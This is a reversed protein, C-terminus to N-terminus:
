KIVGIKYKNWQKKASKGHFYFDSSCDTFNRSKEWLCKSGGPHSDIYETINYVNSNAIIICQNNITIMEIIDNKSFYQKQYNFINCFNMNNWM